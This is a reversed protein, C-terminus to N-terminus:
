FSYGNRQMIDSMVANNQINSEPQQPTGTTPLPADAYINGTNSYTSQHSTTIDGMVAINGKNIFTQHHMADFNGLVVLVAGQEVVLTSGQEMTLNGKIFLTGYVYLFTNQEFYLDTDVVVEHNALINVTNKNSLRRTPATGSWTTSTNWNGSARTSFTTNALADDSNGINLYLFCLFGLISTLMIGAGTYILSTKLQLKQTTKPSLKIQTRM